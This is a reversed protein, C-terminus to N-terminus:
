EISRSTISSSQPSLLVLQTKYDITFVVQSLLDSGIGLLIPEPLSQSIGEFSEERASSVSFTVNGITVERIRYGRPARPLALKTALTRDVCTRSKGTDIQILVPHGNVSGRVVLLKPLIKNAILPV